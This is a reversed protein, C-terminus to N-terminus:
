RVSPFQSPINVLKAAIKRHVFTFLSKACAIRRAVVVSSKPKTDTSQQHCIQYCAGGDCMPNSEQAVVPIAGLCPM